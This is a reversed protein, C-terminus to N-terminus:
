WADRWAVTGTAGTVGITTNGAQLYKWVSSPWNIWGGRRSGAVTPDTGAYVMHRAYDVTMQSGTTVGFLSVQDGGVTIVVTGSSPTLTFTPPATATGANAVTTTAVSQSHLAYSQIRSAASVMGLMFNKPRQGTIKPETQRRLWLAKQPEGPETWRLVADTLMADGARLLKNQRSQETATLDDPFILGELTVPRRGYFFDGHVGGDDEVLDEASERVSASEFGGINTLYGVFNADAKDNFVAFASGPGDLYYPIGYLVAM